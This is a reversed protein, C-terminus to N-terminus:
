RLLLRNSATFKGADLALVIFLMMDVLLTWPLQHLILKIRVQGVGDVM